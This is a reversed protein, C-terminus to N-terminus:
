YTINVKAGISFNLMKENESFGASASIVFLNFPIFYFGAGYGGHWAKSSENKLWVRGIDYFGTLGLTGPLIFSNVDFLKVRMEIGSYFTSNGAFRNKRFGKLDNNAGFNLAQFYEYNKSLIRSGGVKLVM